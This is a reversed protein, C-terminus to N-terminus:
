PSCASLAKPQSALSKHVAALQAALAGFAFDQVRRSGYAIMEERREQSSVGLEVADAIAEVSRHDFYIAKGETIERFIELDSLVMPTGAAMAELIPIGFGEYASPFALLRAAHYARRVDADSLGSLLTVTGELQLKAIQQRLAAGHGSDNGIIVLPCDVGRAALVAIAEILRPYNKRDELHGVALVYGEPLGHRSRFEALEAQSVEGAGGADFGNYVVSVPTRDYFDLIEARMAHSVTVVHDARKLADRLVRVFLTRNLPNATDRLGRVDHITLLTPADAPRTLPMHMAEFVDFADRRHAERWYRAGALFKGVRGTSPIPTPRCSVNDQGAFWEGLRCDRPEYIVFENEPQQRILAGYIGVFRQRAGSPRDNLITANLGIKM